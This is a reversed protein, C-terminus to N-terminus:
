LSSWTFSNEYKPLIIIVSSFSVLSIFLRMLIAFDANLLFDLSNVALLIFMSMLFLCMLVYTQLITRYPQSVYVIFSVSIFVNSDNSIQIKKTHLFYAPHSFFLLWSASSITPSSRENISEPSLYFISFSLVNM